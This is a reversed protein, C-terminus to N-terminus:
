ANAQGWANTAAETEARKKSRGIGSAPLTGV